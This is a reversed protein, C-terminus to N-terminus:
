AAVQSRLAAAARIVRPLGDVEQLVDLPTEGDLDACPAELWRVVGAGTLAHRLQQVVRALARVTAAQGGAPLPGGDSLWRQWTRASVGALEAVSRQPGELAGDLWRVVERLPREDAVPAEELVDRLAQRMQELGIRLEGRADPGGGLLARMARLAGAQLSVVLYPDAARAIEPARREVEAVAEAVQTSTGAPMAPVGALERDIAAIGGMLARLADLDLPVPQPVVAM